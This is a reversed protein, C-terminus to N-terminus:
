RSAGKSRIPSPDFSIWCSIMARRSSSRVATQGHVECVRFLEALDAGRHALQAGAEGALIPPRELRIAVRLLEYRGQRVGTPEGREDRLLVAARPQRQRRRAHNELLDVRGTAVRAGTVRLHVRHARDEAM